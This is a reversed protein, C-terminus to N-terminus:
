RNQQDRRSRLSGYLSESELFEASRCHRPKDLAEELPRGSLRTSLQTGGERGFSVEGCVTERQARAEQREEDRRPPPACPKDPLHSNLAKVISLQLM